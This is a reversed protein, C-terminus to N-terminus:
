EVVQLRRLQQHAVKKGQKEQDAITSLHDQMMAGLFIEQNENRIKFMPIM